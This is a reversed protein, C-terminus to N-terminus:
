NIGKRRKRSANGAARKATRKRQLKKVLKGRRKGAPPAQKAKVARHRINSESDTDMADSTLSVFAAGGKRKSIAGKQAVPPKHRASAPPRKKVM